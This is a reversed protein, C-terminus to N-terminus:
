LFLLRHEAPFPQCADEIKGLVDTGYRNLFTAINVQREQPKGEPFLYVHM